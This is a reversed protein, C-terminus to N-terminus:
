WFRSCSRGSPWRAAAARLRMVAYVAAAVALVVVVYGNVDHRTSGDGHAGHDIFEGAFV